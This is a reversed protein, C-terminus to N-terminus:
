GVIEMFRKWTKIRYYEFGLFIMKREMELQAVRMVGTRTKLELFLVRPRAGIVEGPICLTVDTWGAGKTHAKVYHRSQPHAHCPYGHDHAWQVIKSQLPSETEGPEGKLSEMHQRYRAETWNNM